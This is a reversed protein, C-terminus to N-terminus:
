RRWLRLLQGNDRAAWTDGTPSAAVHPVMRKAAESGPQAVTLVTRERWTTTDFVLLTGTPGGALLSRSDATFAHGHDAVGPLPLTVLSELTTADLVQLSNLNDLWLLMRDDPSITLRFPRSGISKRSLERCNRLDWRQLTQNFDGWVVDGQNTVAVACPPSDTDHRAVLTNTERDWLAIVGALSGAVIWRGDPSAEAHNLPADPPLIPIEIPATSGDIPGTLLRQNQDVWWLRGGELHLPKVVGSMEAVPTFTAVDWITTSHYNNSALLRRGDRSFLLRERMSDNEYRVTRSTPPTAATDRSWLRIDGRKSSSVIQRSRSLWQAHIATDLHGRLLATRQREPLTWVELAQDENPYVFATGDPHFAAPCHSNPTNETIEWLREQTDWTRQELNGELNLFVFTTGDPSIASPQNQSYDAQRVPASPDTLDILHFFRQNFDIYGVSLCVIARTLDHNTIVYNFDQNQDDVRRPFRWTALDRDTTLDRLALRHDAGNEGDQFYLLHDRNAAVALPRFIGPANPRPDPTGDIVSWTELTYDPASGVLRSGDRTFGCVRHIGAFSRVLAGTTLDYLETLDGADEVAVLREDPSVVLRTITPGNERIIRATDGAAERHLAFWEFNRLDSEGPKPRVQNLFNRALGFHRHELARQANAISASYLTQRTLDALQAEAARRAASETDARQRELFAGAAAITAIVAAIAIWKRARALGAEAFRLRRVSKGAELLQLEALLAEATPYREDPHPAAAKIIVENLEMLEARDTRDGLDAPLRPFDQRDRGTALEYLVKGFSYIDAAPSGPGEPPVFGETGVYTLAEGAVAVLGIDALKPRGDVIIINSPKIDRHVLGTGHLEALDRALDIAYRLLRDVPLTRDQDRIVKLTLPAYCDPDIEPGAIVDDALEMVYYFFGGANNRGVHLLSLQRTEGTTIRAFERLGKFEREYPAEDTFRNRWVVKVARYLGTAGRALWVDGYSGRGILRLLEYDPVPPPSSTAAEPPLM